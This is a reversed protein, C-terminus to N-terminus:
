DKIFMDVIERITEFINPLSTRQKRWRIFFLFSPELVFITQDRKSWELLRFGNNEQFKQLASLTSNISAAPPTKGEELSLEQIRSDIEERSLEFKLPDLTFIMLIIEYTNFKRAKKRPGKTLRLYWSDFQKYRSIAVNHLAKFACQRTFEIVTGHKFHEIRKDIFLQACAQQTIIPLGSSEKAILNLVSVSPAIKLKQFGKISIKKLDDTSWRKLDIQQIRGVLDSNAHALDVGHHTTGVVIVSVEHDTFTKWQQFIHEQVKETLYHFDEVVLIANSNQLLPVLHSPSPKALIKERIEIESKTNKIGLKAEGILGALWPWGISGGIKAEGSSETADGKQVEKLRSFDVEELLRAWFEESNVTGDCRVVLPVKDISKLVKRYLTTKGTKSSGTILCLTGKEKISQRLSFEHKGDDQAVYTNSPVSQGNFIDSIDYTNAM